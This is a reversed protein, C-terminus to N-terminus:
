NVSGTITPDVEATPLILEFTEFNYKPASALESEIFSQIEEETYNLFNDKTRVEAVVEVATKFPNSKLEEFKEIAEVGSDYATNYRELVGVLKEPLEKSNFDLRRFDNFAEIYMEIVKFNVEINDNLYSLAKAGYFSSNNKMNYFYPELPELLEEPVNLEEKFIYMGTNAFTVSNYYLYIHTLDQLLGNVIFKISTTLTVLDSTLLKYVALDHEKLYKDELEEFKTAYKVVNILPYKVKFVDTAEEVSDFLKNYEEINWNNCNLSPYTELMKKNINRYYAVIEEFSLGSLIEEYDKNIKNLNAM